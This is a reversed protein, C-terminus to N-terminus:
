RAGSMAAKTLSWVFEDYTQDRESLTSELMAGSAAIADPTSSHRREEALMRQYLPEVARVTGAAPVRRNSHHGVIRGNRDFTPTVHAFVWYHAGDGALNLIYAFVEHGEALRDWLLKFVARPMEPHRLINHPKGLVEDERYHAIDLFLSNAYTIIGKPDTKSVIFAGEDFTREVGTPRISGPRM